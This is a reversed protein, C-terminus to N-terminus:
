QSEAVDAFREECVSLVITQAKARRGIALARRTVGLSPLTFASPLWTRVIKQAGDSSGRSKQFGFRQPL